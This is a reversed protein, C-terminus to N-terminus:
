EVGYRLESDWEWSSLFSPRNLQMRHGVTGCVLSTIDRFIECAKLYCDRQGPQRESDLLSKIKM